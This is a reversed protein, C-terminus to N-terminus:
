LRVFFGEDDREDTILCSYGDVDGGEAAKQATELRRKRMIVSLVINKNPETRKGPLSVHLHYFASKYMFLGM